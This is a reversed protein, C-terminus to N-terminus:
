QFLSEAMNAWPLINRFQGQRGTLGYCVRRGGGGGEGFGVIRFNGDMISGSDGDWVWIMLYIFLYWMM